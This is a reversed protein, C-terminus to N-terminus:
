HHSRRGITFPFPEDRRRKAYPQCLKLADIVHKAWERDALQEAASEPVLRAAIYARSEWGCECEVWQTVQPEVFPETFLIPAHGLKAAATAHEDGFEALPLPGPPKM